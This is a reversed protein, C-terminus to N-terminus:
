QANSDNIEEALEPDNQLIIAFRQLQRENALGRGSLGGSVYSAYANAFDKDILIRSLARYKLSRAMFMVHNLLGVFGSAGGIRDLSAATGVGFMTQLDKGIPATGGSNYYRSLREFAPLADSFRKYEDPTLVSRLMRNASARDRAIPPHLIQGLMDPDIFFGGGAKPRFLSGFIDASVRRSVENAIDPRSRRMARMVEDLDNPTMKMLSDTIGSPDAGFKNTMGSSTSSFAQMLPDEKLSAILREQEQVSLGAQRALKEKSLVDFESNRARAGTLGRLMDERVRAIWENKYAQVKALSSVDRGAAIEAQVLPNSYFEDLEQATVGSRSYKNFTKAVNSVQEATGFGLMEVPFNRAAANNLDTSLKKLDITSRGRTARM